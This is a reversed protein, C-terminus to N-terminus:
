KEGEAKIVDAAEIATFNYGKKKLGAILERLYEPDIFWHLYAGCTTDRVVRYKHAKMILDAPLIKGEGGEGNPSVFGLNEPLRLFGSDASWAIQALILM